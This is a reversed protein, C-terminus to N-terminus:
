DLDMTGSHYAAILRHLGESTMRPESLPPIEDLSFFDVLDVELCETRTYSEMDCEFVLKWIGTTTFHPIWREWHWLALLRRTSVHYGSEEATEREAAQTPSEGPDAYGGPLSWTKSGRHRVLLVEDDRVVFARVDITPSPWGTGLTFLDGLSGDGIDDEVGDSASAAMGLALDRLQAYRERDFDDNTFMLGSQAIAQIQRAWEFVRLRAQEDASVAAVRHAPEVPHRRRRGM